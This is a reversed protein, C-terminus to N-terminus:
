KGYGFMLLSGATLFYGAIGGATSVPGTTLNGLFFAGFALVLLGASLAIQTRKEM